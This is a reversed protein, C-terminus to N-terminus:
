NISIEESPYRYKLNKVQRLFAIMLSLMSVRGVFMCAILISKSGSSLDATIGLSLGTTTYASFCEFAVERIERGPELFMIFFVAMGIVVLSLAITASARKLTGNSIERKYIEVRDKGRALSFFNLTAVALTSTKVGGGTGGPSAGVWMLFIVVLSTPVLLATMDVNNFGATRPTVSNFFAVVIKGFESHESLTNYYELWYFMGTGFVLLVGTTVVVIRTNINIIWPKYIYHSHKGLSKITNIVLHNFYSLFNFLIPFGIGGMIILFAVYLQILYNFRFGVDYFGYSLTSFGANCFASVAHFGSFYARDLFNPFMLPDLSSYIFAAGILEIILTLLIIKKLTGFVEAIKESNTMERLMLQNEYSAGGRFFYSFYSTFTMIGIGGIQILCIIVIQGFTTFYTGTDVVALGTVCVASTSTFLADIPQIGTYTANPLMLMLMGAIIILAFSAVFLQAPNLVQRSFNIKLASFERVFVFIATLYTWTNPHQFFPIQYGFALRLGFIVFFLYIGDFVWAKFPPRTEKPFYLIALGFIALGFNVGYVVRLVFTMQETQNFGLDYIVCSLALFSVWFPVKKLIIQM